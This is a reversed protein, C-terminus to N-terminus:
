WSGIGVRLRNIVIWSNIATQVNKFPQFSLGFFLIVNQSLFIVHFQCKPKELDFKIQINGHKTMTCM